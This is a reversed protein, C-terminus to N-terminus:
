GANESQAWRILIEAVEKRTFEEPPIEGRSLMERVKTGSLTIREDPSGPSTKATAMGGTRLCYFSHEFFLPTIGLEDPAFEDFIHQADYTGYYNGVGAHDRGVIFHTAGYNKRVLAHFIAERPGAYRMAAPLTGLIVRDTPFYGEILVKYCAMRVDAPVDGKKTEGILPHLFLGDTVELACKIIYEHARHIPNRTQFAVVRRWGKEAFLARSASPPLEADPFSERPVFALVTVEGGVLLERQRYLAAVGPHAEDTTRFALKAERKKDYPFVENADLVAVLNGDEAHLAAGKAKEVAIADDKSLSLTIPLSWALGNALHMTEVVSEYDARDMFGTLPSFGGIAIMELDSAERANVTLKPLTRARELFAAREADAVRRNVLIGGHPAINKSVGTSGKRESPTDRM